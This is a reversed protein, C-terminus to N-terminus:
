ASLARCTNCVPGQFPVFYQKRVSTHVTWKQRFLLVSVQQFLPEFELCIKQEQDSLPYFLSINSKQM